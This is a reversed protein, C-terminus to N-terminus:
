RGSVPRVEVRARDGVGLGLQAATAVHSAREGIPPLQEVRRAAEILELGVVDLAVPDRSFYLAGPAISYRLKFGPGGAIGARLADTLHLIVKGRVVPEAALAPIFPDGRQGAQEFRRTNDVLGLSVNYLAGALGTSEHDMLVPVNILKTITQTLLKPFHSRTALGEAAGFQLDGWILKGVLKSEFFAGADWGTAGIIPEVRYARPQYDADRLKKPDRDFVVINTAAVGARQLGDALADLVEQRTVHLPAALTSIKIGVVDHSHVLQRWAATEDAQGTLACLGARVLARVRPAHIQLGTVAGPDEACIVLNTQAGAAVAGLLFIILFLRM